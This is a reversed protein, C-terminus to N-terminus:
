KRLLSRLRKMEIQNETTNLSVAIDKKEAATLHFSLSAPNNSLTPIYQFSIRHLKGDFNRISYELQDNQYYDQLKFWNKQLLLMPKTFFSIFSNDELVKDWDGRKRDRIQILIIQSTNEKLWDQFTNVFRLATETGFNDRLGADMVDIIPDSPLWVNPLVYPFTANMRLASLIRLDGAHQNRFLSYFDVADPDNALSDSARHQAKMLFRAPHSAMIMKRGDRTIVANFLMLPVKAQLEADKYDYLTKDLLGRTNENLKKEFAYGRDKTYSQNRFTFKQVPGIIDRAVLSSFLPNLLDKSIDNVYTTDRLFIPKGKQKAEYLARFYAAGLMGGSAGSILLTKRMLQGGTLSDLRQLTNMTFTASRTGGGSTNIIIMVPKEATQRAKWNNLLQLYYKKDAELASDQTQNLLTTRNYAPRNSKDTYNIGYAKNRPDFIENIYLYNFLLYAVLLVPITWTKFLVSLAGAVAILIAFLITISAAAPIQFFSEDQAFGVLILFLFAIFVSGVAALHHRKFIADLFAERYHRVDRPKRLRLGASLFWHIKMESQIEPLTEHQKYTYEQNAVTIEKGLTFFITKDAGFFYLFSLIITGVFGGTFGLMLEIIERDTLLAQQQDYQIAHVSYFVLFIIPIIANNICYKLFPQATTALFRLHKAHLIFTTINWSMMFVAFAVGVIATSLANVQGYYEPALYLSYAGFSTMFEGGVTAFLIYWFLLLIQYKRFHLLLLQMPLSFWCGKLFSRIRM